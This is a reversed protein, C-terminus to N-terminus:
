EGASARAPSMAGNTGAGEPGAVPGADPNEASEANGAGQEEPKERDSLRPCIITGKGGEIKRIGIRDFLLIAGPVIGDRDVMERSMVFERLDLGRKVDRDDIREVKVRVQEDALETVRFSGSHDPAVHVFTDGGVTSSGQGTLGGAKDSEQEAAQASGASLQPQPTAAPRAAAPRWARLRRFADLVGDLREHHMGSTLGEQLYYLVTNAALPDSAVIVFVPEDPAARNLVSDPDGLEESATRTRPAKDSFLAPPKREPWGKMAQAVAVVAAAKPMERGFFVQLQLQYFTIVRTALGDVARLIFVPEDAQARNLVSAPDSKEESATRVRWRSGDAAIGTPGAIEEDELHATGRPIATTGTETTM